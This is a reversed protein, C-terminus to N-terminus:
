TQVDTLPSSFDEYRVRLQDLVRVGGSLRVRYKNRQHSMIPLPMCHLPAHPPCVLVCERAYEGPVNCLNGYRQIVGHVDKGTFLIDYFLKQTVKRSCLVCFQQVKPPVEGPLLFEVGTFPTCPDIFMCECLDGAVCAREGAIPERLFSEEYVRTVVPVSPPAYTERSYLNELIDRYPVRSLLTDLDLEAPTAPARVATNINRLIQSPIALDELAIPPTPSQPPDAVAADSASPPDDGPKRKRRSGVQTDWEEPFM